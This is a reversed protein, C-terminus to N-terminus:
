DVVTKVVESGVKVIVVGSTAPITEADSTAIVTTNHGVVDSVIITKGAAGYVTVNGEGAVVSITNAEIAGNSTPTEAKVLTTSMKANNDIVLFGNVNSVYGNAATKMFYSGDNDRDSEFIFRFNNVKAATKLTDLAIEGKTANFNSVVLSDVGYREATRFVLRPKGTYQYTDANAVASDGAAWLYMREGTLVKTEADSAIAKSIYYAATEGAKYNVTDLYFTFDGEAYEAKLENGVQAVVAVNNKGIALMDNGSKIVQHGEANFNVAPAAMENFVFPAIKTASLAITDLAPAVAQADLIAVKYGYDAATYDYNGAATVGAKSANKMAVFGATDILQYQDKACTKILFVAASDAAKYNASTEKMTYQGNEVRVLYKGDKDKMKYSQRYLQPVDDTKAAGYAAANVKELFMASENDTLVVKGDKNGQLYMDGLYEYASTVQFMINPLQAAERYLYGSYDKDGSLSVKADSLLITESGITYTNEKDEVVGVFGSYLSSGTARNVFEYIGEGLKKVVFQANVDAANVSAATIAAANAGKLVAATFPAVAYKDKNDGDVYKVTYVKKVDITAGEESPAQGAKYPQILPYFSTNNNVTDMVLYVSTGLLRLAPAPVTFDGTIMKTAKENMTFEAILSDSFANTQSDFKPLNYPRIAISDNAIGVKVVFVASGIPRNVKGKGTIQEGALPNVGFTPLTDALALTWAPMRMVGESGDVVMNTDADAYSGKLYTTDVVLAKKDATSWLVLLSDKDDVSPILKGLGAGAAGWSKQGVAPISDEKATSTVNAQYAKWTKETLINKGQNVDIPADKVDSQNFYLKGGYKKMFVNFDKATLTLTEQPHRVVLTATLSSPIADESTGRVSNLVLKSSEYTLYFVSDNKFAYFCKGNYAWEDIGTAAFKVDAIKGADGSKSNTVSPVILKVGQTNKLTYSRATGSVKVNITWLTSDVGAYSTTDIMTATNFSGNAKANLVKADLTLGNDSKVVLANVYESSAMTPDALQVRTGDKLDNLNSYYLQANASLGGAVLAIALLTSFRKNM